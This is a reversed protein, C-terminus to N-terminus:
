FLRAPSFFFCPPARCPIGGATLLCDMDFTRATAEETILDATDRSLFPSIFLRFDKPGTAIASFNSDITIDQRTM